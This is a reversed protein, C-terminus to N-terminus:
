SRARLGDVLLRTVEAALQPGTLRGDERFWRPMWNIAGMFTFVAIKPDMRVLTGDRMGEEIMAVFNQEFADRRAVVKRRDTPRLADIEMIIACAGLDEFMAAIYTQLTITLKGAGTRGERTGREIAQDGIDQALCHCEFLIEQKDRVYNYLTGKAIDLARAVDDLSTNHYGYKSFARGAEKLVAMRKLRQIEDNTKHANKWRGM